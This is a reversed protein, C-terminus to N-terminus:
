RIDRLLAPRLDAIETGTDTQDPVPLNDDATEEGDIRQDFTPPLTMNTGIDCVGSTVMYARTQTVYFPENEAQETLRALQQQNDAFVAMYSKWAVSKMGGALAAVAAKNLEKSVTANSNDVNDNAIKARVKKVNKFISM